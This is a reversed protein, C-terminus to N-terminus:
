EAFGEWGIGICFLVLARARLFLLPKSCNEIGGRKGCIRHRLASVVALSPVFPREVAFIYALSLLPFPKKMSTPLSERYDRGVKWFQPAISAVGLLRYVFSALTKHFSYLSLSLHGAPLKKIFSHPFRGAASATALM